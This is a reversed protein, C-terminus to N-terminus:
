IGGHFIIKSWFTYIPTGIIKYVYNMFVRFIDLYGFIPNISALNKALFSIILVVLLIKYGKEYLFDLLKSSKDILTSLFIFGDLPYVPILNFAFLCVNYSYCYSLTKIIVDDFLFIDPLHKMCLLLLPASIFAGILNAVIGALSVLIIGKRKNKFKHPNVPVPKAWGFGTLILLCFGVVDFHAIPNLTVRDRMRPTEDGCNVAVFAHFFEHATIVISIAIISSILSIFGSKTFVDLILM